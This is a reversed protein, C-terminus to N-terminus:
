ATISKVMDAPEEVGLARLVGSFFLSRFRETMADASQVFDARAWWVISAWMAGSFYDIIYDVPIPLQSTQIEARPSETIMKTAVRAMIGRFRDYVKNSQERIILSFIDSNEKVTAFISKVLYDQSEHFWLILSRNNIGDVLATLHQELNELLLEEKDQYHLYFTTRGLNARATIEEVTVGEYGKEKVLELL